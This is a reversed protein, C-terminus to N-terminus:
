RGRGASIVRASCIIGITMVVLAVALAGAHEGMVLGANGTRPPQANGPPLLGADGTPPLLIPPTISPQRCSVTTGILVLQGPPM